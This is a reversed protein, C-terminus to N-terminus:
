LGRGEEREVVNVYAFKAKITGTRTIYIDTITEGERTRFIENLNCLSLFRELTIESYTGGGSSESFVHIEM